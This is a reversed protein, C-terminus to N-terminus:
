ANGIFDSFWLTHDDESKLELIADKAFGLTAIIEKADPHNDTFIKVFSDIESLIDGESIAKQNILLRVLVAYLLASGKSLKWATPSEDPKIMSDEKALYAITRHWMGSESAHETEPGIHILKYGHITIFHNIEDALSGKLTYPPCHPCKSEKGLRIVNTIGKYYNESMKTEM